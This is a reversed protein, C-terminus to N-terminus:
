CLQNLDHILQDKEEDLGYMPLLSFVILMIGWPIDSKTAQKLTLALSQVTPPGKMENWTTIFRKDIRFTITKQKPLKLSILAYSVIPLQILQAHEEIVALSQDFCEENDAASFRFIDHDVLSINWDPGKSSWISTKNARITLDTNLDSKQEMLDVKKEEVM